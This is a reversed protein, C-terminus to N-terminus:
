KAKPAGQTQQAIFALLLQVKAPSMTRTVPMNYTTWFGPQAPTNVRTAILPGYQVIADEMNLPIFMSMAPYILYYYRLVNNYVDQWQLPPNQYLHSFDDNMYIRISSYTAYSWVPVGTIGDPNGQGYLTPDTQFALITAGSQAATVQVPFWDAFGQGTPVTIQAPMKLLRRTDQAVTQDPRVTDPVTTLLHIINAYEYLYVTTDATTPGGRDYVKLGITNTSNPLWYSARDDTVLRIPTEQLLVTGSNIPSGASGRVVLTGSAITAALQPDYPLDVIGGFDEYTSYDALGYDIPAITVPTSSGAPIVALEVAGLNAKMKKAGFGGAGPQQPGNPNRFGYKPFSNVLDLSIVSPQVLAVAGGVLAPPPPPPGQDWPTKQPPWPNQNGQPDEYVM